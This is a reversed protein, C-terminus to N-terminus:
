ANTPQAGADKKEPEVGGTLEDIKGKIEDAEQDPLDLYRELINEKSGDLEVLALEITKDEALGTAAMNISAKVDNKGDIALEKTGFLAQTVQRRERRTLYTLLEATHKGSKTKFQVTERDAM